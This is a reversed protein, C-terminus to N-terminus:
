ADAKKLQEQLIQKWKQYLENYLEPQAPKVINLMQRNKFAEEANTFFGVGIGAGIAAGVSGDCEYLEVPVNTANVFAETFISSLFM